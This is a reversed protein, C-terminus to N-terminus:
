RPNSFTKQVAPGCFFSEPLYTIRYTYIFINIIYKYLLDCPLILTPLFSRNLFVQQLQYASSQVLSDDGKFFHSFMNLSNQGRLRFCSLVDLSVILYSTHKKKPPPYKTIGMKSTGKHYSSSAHTKIQIGKVHVDVCQQRVIM